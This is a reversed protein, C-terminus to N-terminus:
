RVRVLKASRTESGAELRLFYVGPPSVRGNSGTGDWVTQAEGASHPGETLIRVVRGAIDYLGLKVPAGAPIEKGLAYRIVSHDTFPNPWATLRM